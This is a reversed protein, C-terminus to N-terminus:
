QDSQFFAHVQPPGSPRAVKEISRASSNMASWSMNQVTVYDSFRGLFASLRASGIAYYGSGPLNTNTAHAATYYKIEM